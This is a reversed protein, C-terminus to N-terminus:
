AAKKSPSRRPMRNLQLFAEIMPWNAADIDFAEGDMEISAPVGEVCKIRADPIGRKARYKPFETWIEGDVPVLEGYNGVRDPNEFTKIVWFRGDHTYYVNRAFEALAENGDDDVVERYTVCDTFCTTLAHVRDGCFITLWRHKGIHTPESYNEDNLRVIVPLRKRRAM